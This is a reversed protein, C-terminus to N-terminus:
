VFVLPGSSQNEVLLLDPHLFGKVWCNWIQRTEMHAGGFCVMPELSFSFEDSKTPLLSRPAQSLEPGMLSPYPLFDSFPAVFTLPQPGASIFLCLEQDDM